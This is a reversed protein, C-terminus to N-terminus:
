WKPVARGPTWPYGLRDFEKKLREIALGIQDVEPLIKVMESSVIDYQEMSTEPVDQNSSIYRVSGM